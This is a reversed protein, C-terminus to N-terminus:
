EMNLLKCYSEFINYLIGKNRTLRPVWSAKLAKIKCEIDVFSLGGQLVNGILTNRKIRETKDWIFNFLGNLTKM